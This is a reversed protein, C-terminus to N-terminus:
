TTKFPVDRTALAGTVASACGGVFHGAPWEASKSPPRFDVILDFHLLVEYTLMRVSGSCSRRAVAAAPDAFHWAELQLIGENVIEDLNRSWILVCCCSADGDKRHLDDFGQFLTSQPSYSAYWLRRGRMIHLEKL